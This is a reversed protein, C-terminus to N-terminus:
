KQHPAIQLQVLVTQRLFLFALVPPEIAPLVEERVYEVLFRDGQRLPQSPTAPEPTYSSRKSSGAAKASMRERTCLTSVSRPSREGLSPRM